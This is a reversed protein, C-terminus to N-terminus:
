ERCAIPLPSQTYGQIQLDSTQGACALKLASMRSKSPGCGQMLQTKIPMFGVVYALLRASMTFNPWIPSTIMAM